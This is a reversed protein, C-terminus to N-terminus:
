PRRRRSRATTCWSPAACACGTGSARRRCARRAGCARRPRCGRRRASPPGRPAAGRGARRRRSPICAPRNAAARGADARAALEMAPTHPPGCVVAHKKRCKRCGANGDEGHEGGDRGSLSLLLLRWGVSARTAVEDEQVRQLGALKGDGVCHEEAEQTRYAANQQNGPLM